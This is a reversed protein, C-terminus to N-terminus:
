TKHGPTTQLTYLDWYHESTGLREGTPNQEERFNKLLGM